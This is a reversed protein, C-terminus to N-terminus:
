PRKGGRRARWAICTMTPEPGTETTGSFECSGTSSCHSLCRLPAPRQDLEGDLRVLNSVTAELTVLEPPGDIMEIISPERDSIVNPEYVEARNIELDAIAQGVLGAVVLDNAARVRRIHPLVQVDAHPSDIVGLHRHDPSVARM